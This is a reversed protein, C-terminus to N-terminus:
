KWIYYLAILILALAMVPSAIIFIPSFALIATTYKIKNFNM